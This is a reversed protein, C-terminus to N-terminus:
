DLRAKFPKAGRTRSDRPLWRGAEVRSLFDGVV